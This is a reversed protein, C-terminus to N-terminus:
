RDTQSSSWRDTQRGAQGDTQRRDPAGKLRYLHNAAWLEPRRRFLALIYKLYVCTQNLANVDISVIYVTFM